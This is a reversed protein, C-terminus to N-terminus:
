DPLSDIHYASFNDLHQLEEMGKTESEVLDIPRSPLNARAVRSELIFKAAKLRLEPPASESLADEIAKIALGHINALRNSLEDRQQM